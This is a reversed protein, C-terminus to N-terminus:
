KTIIPKAIRGEKFDSYQRHKVITGDEFEVDIDDHNRCAIITAKLGNNMILSEGVIKDGRNSNIDNPNIVSGEIFHCYRTKISTGDEFCIVINNANNYETIIAAQGNKM